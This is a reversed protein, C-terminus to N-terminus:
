GTVPSSPSRSSGAGPGANWTLFYNAQAGGNVTYHVTVFTATFGNPKFWLKPATGTALGQAYPAQSGSPSPSPSATPSPPASPTPTPSPSGPPPHLRHREGM